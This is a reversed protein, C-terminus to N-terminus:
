RFLWSPKHCERLLSSLRRESPALAILRVSSFADVFRPDLVSNVLNIVMRMEHVSRSGRWAALKKRRCEEVLLRASTWTPLNDVPLLVLKNSKSRENTFISSGCTAVLSAFRVM